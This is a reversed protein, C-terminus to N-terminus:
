HPAAGRLREITGPGSRRIYWLLLLLVVVVTGLIAVRDTYSARVDADGSAVAMDGADLEFHLRGTLASGMDVPVSQINEGPMAAFTITRGRTLRLGQPVTRLTLTLTKGTGNHVSVPIRGTSGSLTVNPIALTVKALVSMARQGAAEAFGAGRASAGASASWAASESVLLPELSAVADPDLTGASSGLALVQSRARSLADRYPLAAATAAISGPLAVSGRPALRAADEASVLRIWGTRALAALTAQLNEVSTRTGPGVEISVVVPTGSAPKSTLRAFLLDLLDRRGPVANSLVDSVQRDVVLATMTSEAISYVGPSATTERGKVTMRASAPDLLVFGTRLTALPGTAARSLANGSVALGDAGGPGLTESTVQAGADLQLRLDDLAGISELTGPEPDAYGVAVLRLSRARVAMRLADLTARARAAPESGAPVAPSGTASRSYGQAAQAWDDVAVPALALSLHMDPRLSALRALADAEARVPDPGGPDLVFRGQPDRMPTAALRVVVAVRLPPRQDGSVYVTEAATVPTAGGARVVVEFRHTGERLGLGSVDRSFTMIRTGAPVNLLRETKQLVLAGSPGYLRCRVSMNTVPRSLSVSTSADLVGSTTTREGVRLIEVKPAPVPTAAHAGPGAAFVACTAAVALVAAVLRLAKTLIPHVDMVASM